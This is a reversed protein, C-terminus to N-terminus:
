TPEYASVRHFRFHFGGGATIANGAIEVRMQMNAGFGIGAWQPGAEGLDEGGMPVWGAFGVPFTYPGWVPLNAATDWQHLTVDVAGAAVITAHMGVLRYEHAAGPVPVVVLSQVPNLLLPEHTDAVIAALLYAQVVKVGSIPTKAAEAIRAM